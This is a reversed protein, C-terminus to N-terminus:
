WVEMTWILPGAAAKWSWEQIPVLDEMEGQSFASLSIFVCACHWLALTVKPQPTGHELGM